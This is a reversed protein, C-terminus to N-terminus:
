PRGQDGNRAGLALLVLITGAMAFSACGFLIIFTDPM